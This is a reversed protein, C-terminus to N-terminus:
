GSYLNNDCLQRGHTSTVYYHHFNTLLEYASILFITHCDFSCYHRSVFLLQPSFIVITSVDLSHRASPTCHVVSHICYSSVTSTVLCRLMTPPVSAKMTVYSWMQGVRFCACWTVVIQVAWLECHNLVNCVAITIVAILRLYNRVYMYKTKTQGM